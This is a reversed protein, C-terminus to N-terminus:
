ARLRREIRELTETTADATVAALYSFVASRLTLGDVTTELIKYVDDTLASRDDRVARAQDDTLATLDTAM